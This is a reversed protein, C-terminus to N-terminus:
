VVTLDGGIVFETSGIFTITIQSYRVRSTAARNAPITMTYGAGAALTIQGAAWQTFVIVDGAVYTGTTSNVTQTNGSADAVIMIRNAHTDHVISTSGALTVSANSGIVDGAFTATRNPDIDLVTTVTGAGDTAGSSHIIAYSGNGERGSRWAHNADGSNECVFSARASASSTLAKFLANGSKSISIDDGVNLKEAIGVGGAYVGSGTTPSTSATNDTTQIVGAFKALNTAGVLTLASVSLVDNYISYDNSSNKYAWWKLVGASKLQVGGNKGADVDVLLFANAADGITSITADAFVVSDTTNLDQDFPNNIAWWTPESTPDKNLNAAQLSAYIKGDSGVVGGDGSAYTINANWTRLFSVKEWFDASSIPDNGLNTSQISRYYESDSGVVLAQNEYTILASWADFVAGSGSAGVGSIDFIQEDNQDTLVVRATGSYFIDPVRGDATCVVPNSNVLAPTEDIDSFTDKRVSTNDEYYNLKGGSLVATGALDFYQPQPNVFRNTM